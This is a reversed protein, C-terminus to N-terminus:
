VLIINNYCYGIGFNAPFTNVLKCNVLNGKIDSIVSILNSSDTFELLIGGSVYYVKNLHVGVLYNNCLSANVRDILMFVNAFRSKVSLYKEVKKLLNKYVM